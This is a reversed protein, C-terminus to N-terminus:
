YCYTEYYGFSDYYDYCVYEDYCTTTSGGGSSSSGGGAAAAAIVAVLILVILAGYLIGDSSWSAGRNYTKSITEMVMKRAENAPLKNIQVLTMANKVEKALNADKINSTAFEVLEANTLGQAQLAKVQETFKGMQADYFARDTQNWEVSLAYNLEDFATKLSNNSVANAQVSVFAFALFGVFFKKFMNGGSSFTPQYFIKPHKYGAGGNEELNFLKGTSKEVTGSRCWKISQKRELM